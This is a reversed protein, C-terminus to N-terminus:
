ECNAVRDEDVLELKGCLALIQIASLTYLMHPDNRASGGFGGNSHQCSLVWPVIAQTPLPPLAHMPPLAYAAPCQRRLMPLPAHM